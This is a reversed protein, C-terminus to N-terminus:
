LCILFSVVAQLLGRGKIVLLFRTRQRSKRGTSFLFLFPFPWFVCFGFFGGFSGMGLPLGISGHDRMYSKIQYSIIQLTLDHKCVRNFNSTLRAVGERRLTPQSLSFYFSSNKSSDKNKIASLGQNASMALKFAAPIM